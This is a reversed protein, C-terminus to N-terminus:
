GILLQKKQRKLISFYLNVGSDKEKSGLSFLITVIESTSFFLRYDVLSYAYRFDYFILLLIVMMTFWRIEGSFNRLGEDPISSILM